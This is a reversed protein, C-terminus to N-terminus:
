GVTWQKERQPMSPLYSSAIMSMVPQLRFSACRRIRRCLRTAVPLATPRFTRSPRPLITLRARLSSSAADRSKSENKGGTAISYRAALPKTSELTARKPSPQSASALRMTMGASSKSPTRRNRIRRAHISFCHGLYRYLSPNGFVARRNPAQLSSRSRTFDSPRTSTSPDSSVIMCCWCPNGFVAPVSPVPNDTWCRSM